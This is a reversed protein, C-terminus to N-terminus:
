SCFAFYIVQNFGHQSLRFTGSSMALFACDEIYRITYEKAYIVVSSMLKSRFLAEIACEVRNCM